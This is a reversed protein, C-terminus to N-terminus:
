NYVMMQIIEYPKGKRIPPENQINCDESQFLFTIDDIIADKYEFLTPEENEIQYQITVDIKEDKDLADAILDSSHDIDKDITVRLYQKGNEDNQRSLGVSNILVANNNANSTDKTILGQVSGQIKMLIQRKM